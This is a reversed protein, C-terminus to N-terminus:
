SPHMAHAKPLPNSNVGEGKSTEGHRMELTENGFGWQYEKSFKPKALNLFQSIRDGM